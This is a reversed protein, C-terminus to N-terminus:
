GMKKLKKKFYKLFLCGNQIYDEHTLDMQNFTLPPARRSPTSMLKEEKKRCFRNVRLLQSVRRM